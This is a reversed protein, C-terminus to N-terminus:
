IGFELLGPPEWLRHWLAAHFTALHFLCEPLHVLQDIAKAAALHTGLFGHLQEVGLERHRLEVFQHPRIPELYGTLLSICQYHPRSNKAGFNARSKILVQHPIEIRQCGITPPHLGPPPDSTRRMQRHISRLSCFLARSQQSREASALFLLRAPIRQFLKFFVRIFQQRHSPREVPSIRIATIFIFRGDVQRRLPQSFPLVADRLRRCAACM